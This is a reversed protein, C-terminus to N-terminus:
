ISLNLERVEPTEDKCGVLALGFLLVLFLSLFKKVMKLDEKQNTLTYWYFLPNLM